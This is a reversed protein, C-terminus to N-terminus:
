LLEPQNPEPFRPQKILNRKVEVCKQILGEKSAPITAYTYTGNGKRVLELRVKLFARLEDMKPLDTNKINLNPRPKFTEVKIYEVSDRYEAMKDSFDRGIRKCVSQFLKRECEVNKKYIEQERKYKDVQKRYENMVKENLLQRRLRRQNPSTLIKARQRNEGSIGINQKSM